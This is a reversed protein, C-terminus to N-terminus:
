YSWNHTKYLVSNNNIGNGTSNDSNNNTAGTDSSGGCGGLLLTTSLALTLLTAIRRKMSRCRTQKKVTYACLLGHLVNLLIM